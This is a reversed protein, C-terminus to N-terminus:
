MIMGAFATAFPDNDEEKEEKVLMKRDIAIIRLDIYGPCWAGVFRQTRRKTSIEYDQPICRLKLGVKVSKTPIENSLDGSCYIEDPFMLLTYKKMREPDNSVANTAVKVSTNVKVDANVEIKLYDEIYNRFPFLLSPQTM